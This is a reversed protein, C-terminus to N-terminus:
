STLIEDWLKRFNEDTEKKVYNEITLMATEGLNDYSSGEEYHVIFRIHNLGYEPSADFCEAVAKAMRMCKRAEELKGLRYHSQIWCHSLCINWLNKM